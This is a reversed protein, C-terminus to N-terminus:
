TVIINLKALKLIGNVFDSKGSLYNGKGTPDTKLLNEKIKQYEDRPDPHNRLYDRFLIQRDWFSGKDKYAISLHFETPNGKRFFHREGSSNLKDYQYGFERVTKIFSDGDERKEILVAIDIIPKASLGPISTSGIHEIAIAKNSFIEKLKFKEAEFKDVWFSQYPILTTHSSDIPNPFIENIKELTEQLQNDFLLYDKLDNYTVWKYSGIEGEQLKIESDEGIFRFGFFYRESGEYEVGDRNLKTVKFKFRLPIDSQGVIRLSKQKIGLEEYIERYVANELTEGPEVGGGPIAFYRDEFSELNVL